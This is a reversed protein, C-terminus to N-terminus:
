LCMETRARWPCRHCLTYLGQNLWSDFVIIPNEIYNHNSLETSSSSREHRTLRVYDRSSPPRRIGIERHAYFNIWIAASLSLYFIIIIYLRMRNELLIVDPLYLDIVIYSFRNM